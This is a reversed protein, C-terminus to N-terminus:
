SNAQGANELEARTDELDTRVQRLRDEVAETNALARVLEAALRDREKTLARVSESTEFPGARSLWRGQWILAVVSVVIYGAAFVIAVRAVAITFRSAFIAELFNPKDFRPEHSPVLVYILGVVLLPAIILLAVGIVRGAQHAGSGRDAGGTRWGGIRCVRPDTLGCLRENWLNELM